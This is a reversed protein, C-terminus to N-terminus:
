RMWEPKQPLDHAAHRQRFRVSKVYRRLKKDFDSGDVTRAIWEPDIEAVKLGKSQGWPWEVREFKAAEDDSMAVDREPERRPPPNTKARAMDALCEWFHQSRGDGILAMVEEADRRSNVNDELTM